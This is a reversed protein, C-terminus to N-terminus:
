FIDPLFLINQNGAADSSKGLMEWHGMETQWGARRGLCKGAPTPPEPAISEYSWENNELCHGM